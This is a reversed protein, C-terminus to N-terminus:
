CVLHRREARSHRLCATLSVSNMPFPRGERMLRGEKQVSDAPIVRLFFVVGELVILTVNCFPM